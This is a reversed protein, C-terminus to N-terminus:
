GEFSEFSSTWLAIGLDPLFSSSPAASTVSAPPHLIRLRPRQSGTDNPPLLAAFPPRLGSSQSASPLVPTKPCPPLEVYISKADIQRVGPSHTRQEALQGRQRLSNRCGKTVYNAKFTDPNPFSGGKFPVLLQLTFAKPRRPEARPRWRADFVTEAMSSSPLFRALFFVERLYFM